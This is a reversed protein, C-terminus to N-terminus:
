HNSLGTFQWHPKSLFGCSHRMAALSKVVASQLLPNVHTKRCFKFFIFFFHNLLTMMRESFADGAPVNLTRWREALHRSPSEYDSSACDSGIEKLVDSSRFITFSHIEFYFSTFYLIDFLHVHFHFYFIYFITCLNKKQIMLQRM